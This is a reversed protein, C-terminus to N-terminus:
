RPVHGDALDTQDQVCHEYLDSARESEHAHAHFIAQAVQILSKAAEFNGARARDLADKRLKVGMDIAIRLESPSDLAALESRNATRIATRLEGVESRLLRLLQSTDDGSSEKLTAPSSLSLLSVISNIGEENKAAERTSRLAEAISEQDELVERYKLEKRYETYRLPAIDFIKPTGREQVLVVPKDFAQRIGLEFLVNPNRSSLDCIAMPASILKQLIDLHILNTETVEDARVPNLKATACAPALIDRYVQGFHGKEYGDPDAIPMILFCDEVKMRSSKKAM